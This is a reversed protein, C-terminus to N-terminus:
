NILALKSVLPDWMLIVSIASANIISLFVAGSMIDKVLGLGRHYGPSYIDVFKEMATNIVEVIIVLVWSFLIVAFRIKTTGLCILLVALIVGVVLFVSLNKRTYFGYWLGRFAYVASRILKNLISIM